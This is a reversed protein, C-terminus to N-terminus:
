QASSASITSTLYIYSVIAQVDVFAKQFLVPPTHTDITSVKATASNCESILGSDSIDYSIWEGQILVRQNLLQLM